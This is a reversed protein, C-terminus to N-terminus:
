IPRSYGYKKAFLMLPRSAFIPKADRRIGDRFLTGCRPIVLSIAMPLLRGAPSFESRM